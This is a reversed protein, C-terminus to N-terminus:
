KTSQEEKLGNGRKQRTGAKLSDKRYVDFVMDVGLLESSFQKRIYQMVKMVYDDFSESLGLKVMNFIAAGDLIIIQANQPEVTDHDTVLDEVCVLLDAKTGCRMAGYDSLSPPYLKTRMLAFKQWTLQWVQYVIYLTSFLTCNWSSKIDRPAFAQEISVNHVDPRHFLSIGTGHFSTQASTSTPDDASTFLGIKLSQPCVAGISEFHNIASNDLDASM